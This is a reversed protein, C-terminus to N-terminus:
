KFYFEHFDNVEKGLKKILDFDKQRCYFIGNFLFPKEQVEIITYGYKKAWKKNIRKKKHKRNQIIKTTVIVTVM